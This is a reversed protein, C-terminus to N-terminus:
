YRDTDVGFLEEVEDIYFRLRERAEPEIGEQPEQMGPENELDDPDGVVVIGVQGFSEHLGAYNYVGPTEFTHTFEASQQSAGQMVDSTFPEAGEPIRLPRDNEPHYALIQQRCPSTPSWLVEAGEEVWVVGPRFFYEDPDSQIHCSMGVSARSAPAPAPREDGDAADGSPTTCGALSGVVAAGSLALLRRRNLSM